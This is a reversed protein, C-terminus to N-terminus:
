SRNPNCSKHNCACSKIVGQGWDTRSSEVVFKFDFYQIQFMSGIFFSFYLNVSMNTSLFLPGLWWFLTFWIQGLSIKRLSLLDGPSLPSSLQLHEFLYITVQTLISECAPPSKVFVLVGVSLHPFVVACLAVFWKASILVQLRVGKNVTPLFWVPACLAVKWAVRNAVEFPM